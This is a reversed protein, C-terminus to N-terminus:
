GTFRGIYVTVFAGRPARADAEPEQRIVLGEENPDPTEEEFVQVQFGVRQLEVIAEEETLGIVDPVRRRAGPQPGESVNLRVSSGRRVTAGGTPNQAVVVGQPQRSPVFAVRAVLGLAQLRNQANRFSFGVTNPVTVMRARPPPPPPASEGETAPPPQQGTSINIRVPSGKPARTGPQPNQAVVTGRPEDAPVDFVRVEFGAAELRARADGAPRGAVDPVAVRQPGKSVDLRVDSGQEVETGARPTQGVVRSSPEQSFVSRTRAELRAAELREAAQQLDLGVVRPVKVEPPGSSAVLRVPAGLDLMTGSAPRQALVIGEDVTASARRRVETTFGLDHLRDVAQDVQLRVVSPVAREEVTTAREEDALRDYLLWAAIVGVVIVLLALLWAWLHRDPPPPAPPVREEVVEEQAPLAWGREIDQTEDIAPPGSPPRRAM